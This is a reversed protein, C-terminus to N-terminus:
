LFLYFSKVDFFMFRDNVYDILEFRLDKIKAMPIEFSEGEFDFCVLKEAKGDYALIRDNSSDLVFDSTFINFTRKVAGDYRDMIVLNTGDLYFFFSGDVKMKTVSLPFGVRIKLIKDNMRTLGEDYVIIKRLNNVPDTYLLYLNDEHVDAYNIEFGLGFEGIVNMAYDYKIIRSWSFDTAGAELEFLCLVVYSKLEVLQFGQYVNPVVLKQVLQNFNRDYVEIRLFTENNKRLAFCLNGNSLLKVSVKNVNHLKSSFNYAKMNKLVQNYSEKIDDTVLSGFASASKTFKLVTANFVNNLLTKKEKIVKNQLKKAEHSALKLEEDNIEFKKLYDVWKEHFTRTEGLFFELKQKKSVDFKHKAENEYIYIKDILENQQKRLSEILEELHLQVENRLGDCYEKIKDEGLDNEKALKDMNLKLEDLQAEFAKAITSRSVKNAKKECLKALSINKSFGKKPQEHFEDCVPCQFGNTDSKTLFEICPM